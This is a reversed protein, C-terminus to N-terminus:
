KGLQYYYQKSKVGQLAMACAMVCDDHGSAAKLKGDETLQFVKMEALLDRSNILCQDTEFVEQFDDMMMAKSQPTTVWGIKRKSKGSKQDYSKYKYLNPYRYDNKMRDLVTHGASAKEIVLLGKNYFNGLAFLLKTFEYPKIKNSRWEAVQVSSEDFICIVSYDSDLGEGVDVGLYYKKKKEPLKWITLYSSYKRIISEVNKPLQKPHNNYTGNFREMVKEANFFNAGTSIFAEIPNSPFEQAFKEEGNRTIKLRRWELQEITAGQQILALEKEDLEDEKLHKGYIKKYNKSFEKYEAKFMIKDQVWGFFFPKWLPSEGSVAKNWLDFYYNLGNATSELIMSGDSVLAQEIAVLQNQLKKDDMHAPESVLCYSLTSGRANDKTGCTCNIIRSNNVFKIEGQNDILTDLRVCDPLNDYQVRLKEFIEQVGKISYSMIMCTVNPRTHTLYLSYAISAVTLGLQRSKLVINYKEKNRLIYKQQPTLKFPVIKGSKDALSVFTEIWLIPDSVIRQIKEKPTLYKSM